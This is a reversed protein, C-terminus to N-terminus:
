AFLSYILWGLWVAATTFASAFASFIFLFGWPEDHPHPMCIFIILLLASIGAAIATTVLPITM